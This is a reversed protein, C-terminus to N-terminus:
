EGQVESAPNRLCRVWPTKHLSRTTADKSEAVVCYDEPKSPVCYLVGHTRHASSDRL